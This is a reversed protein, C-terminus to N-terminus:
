RGFEVLILPPCFLLMPTPKLFLEGVVFKYVCYLLIIFCNIKDAKVRIRYGKM